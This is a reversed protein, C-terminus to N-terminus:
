IFQSRSSSRLRLLLVSSVDGLGGYRRGSGLARCYSKVHELNGLVVTAAWMSFSYHDSPHALRLLM